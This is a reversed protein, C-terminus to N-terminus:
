LVFQLIRIGDLLISPLITYAMESKLLYGNWKLFIGVVVACKATMGNELSFAYITM